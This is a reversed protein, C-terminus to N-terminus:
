TTRSWYSLSLAFFLSPYVEWCNEQEQGASITNPIDFCTPDEIQDRWGPWPDERWHLNRTEQTSNDQCVFDWHSQMNIKQDQPYRLGAIRQYDTASPLPSARRACLLAVPIPFCSSFFSWTLIWILGLVSPIKRSSIPHLRGAPSPLLWFTPSPSPPRPPLRKDACTHHHTLSALTVLPTTVTGQKSTLVM